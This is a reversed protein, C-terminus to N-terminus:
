EDVVKIQARRAAAVERKIIDVLAQKLLEVAAQVHARSEPFLADIALGRIAAAYLQVMADIPARNKAGLAKALSWLLRRHNESQEDVIPAYKAALEPESRSALMIEIRAIGSPSNVEGWLIDVLKEMRELSVPVDKLGEIHAEGRQRAIHRATAVMLDAKTPFQHLLSGRSVGARETVIVTSTRHYGLEHLCEITANLLKERTSQRRVANPGRPRPKREPGSPKSQEAAMKVGM